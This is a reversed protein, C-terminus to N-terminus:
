PRRKQPPPAYDTFDFDYTQDSRSMMDAITEVVESPDYPIEETLLPTFMGIPVMERSGDEPTYFFFAHTRANYSYMVSRHFQPKGILRRQDDTLESM